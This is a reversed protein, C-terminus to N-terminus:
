IMIKRQKQFIMCTQSVIGILTIYLVQRKKSTTHIAYEPHALIFNQLAEELAPKNPDNVYNLGEVYKHFADRVAEIVSPVHAPIEAKMHELLKEEMLNELLLNPDFESNEDNEDNMLQPEDSNADVDKKVREMCEKYLEYKYKTSDIQKQNLWQNLKTLDDTSVILVQSENRFNKECAICKIVERVRKKSKGYCKDRGRMHIHDANKAKLVFKEYDNIVKIWHSIIDEM